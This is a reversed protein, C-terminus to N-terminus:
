FKKSTKNSDGILKEFVEWIEFVNELLKRLNEWFNWYKKKWSVEGREDWNKESNSLIEPKM